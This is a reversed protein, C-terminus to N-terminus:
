RGNRNKRRNRQEEGNEREAHQQQLLKYKAKLTTFDERGQERLDRKRKFYLDTWYTAFISTIGFITLWDSLEWGAVIGILSTIYAILGTINDQMKFEWNEHIIKLQGIV